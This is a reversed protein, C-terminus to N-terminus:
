GCAVTNQQGNLRFRIAYDSGDNTANFNTVGAGLTAQWAGDNRVQYSNAGVDNWSLNVNGGTRTVTCTLTPAPPPDVTVTGCVQNVQTGNIFARLDYTHSGVGPDHTFSTSDDDIFAIFGGDRVAVASWGADNWTINVTDNANLTASCTLVPVPPIPISETGCDDTNLVGNRRYRLEYSATTGEETVGDVLSTASTGGIFSGNAAVNWTNVNGIDTWSIVPRGDANLSSRCQPDGATPNNDFFASRGVFQDNIRGNDQGLLLGRDVVELSLVGLNADSTVEWAPIGLGTNPNLAGIQETRYVFGPALLDQQFRIAGARTDTASAEYIQTQIPVGNGVREGPYASPATPSPLYRFHGGVYVADNGIAVSFVSDFARTIWTPRVPTTSVEYRTITDCQFGSDSGQTTVVFWSGDPSVKLDRFQTGRGGCQEASYMTQLPDNPDPFLAVFPLVGQNNARGRIRILAIGAADVSSNRTVDVMRAGRHVVILNDGAQALRAVGHTRLNTIADLRGIDDQSEYRWTTDFQGTTADFRALGRVPQNIPPRGPALDLVTLFNGGAYLRGDVLELSLIRADVGAQAFNRDLRGDSLNLRALRNRDRVRGDSGDDIANFRGGIYVGAGDATAEIDRVEAINNFSILTPRFDELFRGTDADYAFIAAQDVIPGDRTTQVQTFNGGVVITNGVQVVDWVEGDLVIPLDRRVTEPVLAGAVTPILIALVGIILAVGLRRHHRSIFTKLMPEPTREIGCLTPFESGM